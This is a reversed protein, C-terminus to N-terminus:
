KVQYYQNFKDLFDQHRKNRPELTSWYNGSNFIVTGHNAVLKDMIILGCKINKEVNFITKSPDKEAKNRDATIDFDCHYHIADSYSLQMLGESLYRMGTASDNGNSDALSSEYYTEDVNFNSEAYCVAKIIAKWYNIDPNAKVLNLHNSFDNDIISDIQKEIDSPIIPETKKVSPTNNNFKSKLWSFFSM